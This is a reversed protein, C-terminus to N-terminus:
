GFVILEIFTIEETPDEFVHGTETCEIDTTKVVHTTIFKTTFIGKIKVVRATIFKTTFIGTTQVVCTTVFKTTFIGSPLIRVPEDPFQGIKQLKLLEAQASV